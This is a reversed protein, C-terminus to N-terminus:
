YDVEDGDAIAPRVGTFSEPDSSARDILDKLRVRGKRGGSDVTFSTYFGSKGFNHTVDTVSGVIDVKGDEGTIQM